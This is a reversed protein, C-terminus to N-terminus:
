QNSSNNNNNNDDDDDDNDDRSSTNLNYFEGVGPRSLLWHLERRKIVCVM